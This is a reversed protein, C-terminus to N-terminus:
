VSVCATGHSYFGFFGKGQEVFATRSRDRRLGEAVNKSRQTLIWSLILDSLESLGYPVLITREERM